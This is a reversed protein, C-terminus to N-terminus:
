SIESEPKTHGYACHRDDIMEATCPTGGATLHDWAGVM